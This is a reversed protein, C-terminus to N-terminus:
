PGADLADLVDLWRDRVEVAVGSRRGRSVGGIARRVAVLTNPVGLPDSSSLTYQRRIYLLVWGRRHCWECDCSYLKVAAM